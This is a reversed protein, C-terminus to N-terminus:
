ISIEKKVDKNASSKDIRMFMEIYYNELELYM